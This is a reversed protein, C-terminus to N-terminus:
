KDGETEPPAPLPRWHTLWRMHLHSPADERRASKLIGGRVVFPSRPDGVGCVLNFDDDGTPASEIPQWGDDPLAVKERDLAPRTYLAIPTKEHKACWEDCRAKDRWWIRTNKTDDSLVLWAVPEDKPESPEPEAQSLAADSAWFAQEIEEPTPKPLNHGASMIKALTARALRLAERMTPATHKATM